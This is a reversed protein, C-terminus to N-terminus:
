RISVKDITYMANKNEKKKYEEKKIDFRKEFVDFYLNTIIRMNIKQTIEMKLIGKTNGL